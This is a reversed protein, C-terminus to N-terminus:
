QYKDSHFIIGLDRKSWTQEQMSQESWTLIRPIKLLIHANPLSIKYYAQSLSM